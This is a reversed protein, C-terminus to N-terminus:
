CAASGASVAKPDSVVPAPSYTGGPPNKLKTNGSTITVAVAKVWSGAVTPIAAASVTLPSTGQPNGGLHARTQAATKIFDQRWVQSSVSQYVAVRCSAVGSTFDPWGVCLVAATCDSQVYSGDCGGYVLAAPSHPIVVCSARDIDTAISKQVVSVDTAVQQRDTVGGPGFTRYGISVAAAVAGTLLALLAVSVLLEILTMGHEDRRLSRVQRGGAPKL